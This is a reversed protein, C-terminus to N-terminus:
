NKFQTAVLEEIIPKESYHHDYLENLSSEYYPTVVEYNALIYTEIIHRESGSLWRKKSAGSARGPYNFISRQIRTDNMCLDDNRSPKSQKCLIQPEFYHSTFLGIEEVLYAKVISAEVHANKKGRLPYIWRYQMPGGMCEEYLLHVILHKMSDFLAPSFIKELNCLITTFSDELEEIKIVDLMTSCLIQFLLSIETLASCVLEHLMKRLAIPILKQMFVHCNHSKMGHLRLEKMNVCHALNSAYSNSFKLHSIWECTRMKQEKTLTYVVKSMINPRRGDMELEPRNCRIKLDKRANLNNKM